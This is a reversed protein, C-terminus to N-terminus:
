KFCMLETKDSNEYHGIDEATQVLNHLVYEAQEPTNTHIMLDDAYVADTITEAPYQRSRAKRVTPGNEKM